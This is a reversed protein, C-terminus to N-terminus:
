KKIFSKCQRQKKVYPPSLKKKSCYYGYYLYKCKQCNAKGESMWKRRLKGINIITSTSTGIVGKGM